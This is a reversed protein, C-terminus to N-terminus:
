AGGNAGILESRERFKELLSKLKEPPIKQRITEIEQKALFDCRENFDHGAHGKVWHWIVKHKAAEDDLQRWLELNKIPKREKTKWGRQKWELLWESIGTRVYQSDTFLEVECRERLSRLAEVAAVLEMRNNTSAPVGGSIERVHQKYSLIAAWGGPGPNGECAGDTYLTVHKM